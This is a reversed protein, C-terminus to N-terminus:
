HTGYCNEKGVKSSHETVGFSETVFSFNVGYCFPSKAGWFVKRAQCELLSKGRHGQSPRLFAATTARQTPSTSPGVKTKTGVVSSDEAGLDQPCKGMAANPSGVSGVSDGPAGLAWPLMPTLNTKERKNPNHSHKNSIHTTKTKKSLIFIIIINININPRKIPNMKKNINTKRTITVFCDRSIPLTGSARPLFFIPPFHSFFLHTQQETRRKSGGKTTITTRMPTTYTHSHSTNHTHTNHTNYITHQTHQIYQTHLCVIVCM